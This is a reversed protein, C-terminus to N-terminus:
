PMLMFANWDRLHESLTKNMFRPTPNGNDPHNIITAHPTLQATPNTPATPTKSATEIAVAVVKGFLSFMSESRLADGTVGHFVFIGATEVQLKLLTCRCECRARVTAEVYKGQQYRM